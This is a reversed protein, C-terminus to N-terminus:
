PRALCCTCKGIIWGTGAFLVLYAIGPILHAALTQPQGPFASASRVLDVEEVTYFWHYTRNSAILAHLIRLFGFVSLSSVAASVAAPLGPSSPVVYNGLVILWGIPAITITLMSVAIRWAVRQRDEGKRWLSATDFARFRSAGGLALAWFFAYFFLLSNTGNDM